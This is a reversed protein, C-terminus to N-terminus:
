PHYTSRLFNDVNHYALQRWMTSGPPFPTGDAAERFSRYVDREGSQGKEAMYYDTGFLIKDALKSNNMYPLLLKWYAEKKYDFESTMFSIDTYVEPLDQMLNLIQTHWNQKSVGIPYLELLDSIGSSQGSVSERYLRMQRLGGFHAFCIKLPKGYVDRFWTLMPRYCEPEMFYSSSYLNAKRSDPKAGRLEYRPGIYWAGNGNLQYPDWANAFNSGIATQNNLFVGGLYYNHSLVPVGNDAAWEFTPKLKEDFPFFGTSPYIKLGSFPTWDTGPVMTDFRSKVDDLMDQGNRYSRPDLGLFLLISDPDESKKKAAIVSELQGNFIKSNGGGIHDLNLTLAVFRFDQGGYNERLLAYMNSSDNFRGAEMIRIFRQVMANGKTLMKIIGTLNAGLKSRVLKNILWAKRKSDMFLPLFDDPVDNLCFLHTHVNTPKM